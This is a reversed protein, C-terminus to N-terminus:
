KLGAAQSSSTGQEQGLDTRDGINELVKGEQPGEEGQSVTSGGRSGRLKSMHEPRGWELFRGEEVHLGGLGRKGIVQVHDLGTAKRVLRIPVGQLM